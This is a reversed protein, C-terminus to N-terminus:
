AGTEENLQEQLEDWYEQDQGLSIIMGRVEDLPFGSLVLSDIMGAVLTDVSIELKDSPM